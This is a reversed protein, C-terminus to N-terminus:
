QYHLLQLYFYPYCLILTYNKVVVFLNLTSTLIAILIGTIFTNIMFEYKFIEMM